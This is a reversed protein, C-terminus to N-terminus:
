RDGVASVREAIWRGIRRDPAAAAVPALDDHVDIDRLPALDVVRHGLEVLRRRQARGTSPTSMPIGDFVAIPDADVPLGISWYGGDTAPGIVATGPETAAGLAEVARDLEAALVQPTDMALVVAPQGVDTFAGALREALGGGRQPVVEWGPPCWPTPDGEFVLVHRGAAVAGAADLTDRLSADAVAAAEALTLPPCLRTKVRGPLPAKAIVMLAAPGSDTPAM